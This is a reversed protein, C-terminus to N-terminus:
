RRQRKARSAESRVAALLETDHAARERSLFGGDLLITHPAAQAELAQMPVITAAAVM